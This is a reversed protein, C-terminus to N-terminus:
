GRRQGLGGPNRGPRPAPRRVPGRTGGPRGPGRRLLRDRAPAADRDGAPHDAPPLRSGAGPEGRGAHPVRHGASGPRHRRPVPEAGGHGAAGGPRAGEPRGPHAPLALRGLLAPIRAPRVAQDQRVARHVEHGPASGAPAPGARGRRAATGPEDHGGLRGAGDQEHRAATGVDDLIQGRVAPVIVDRTQNATAQKTYATSNMVQLYYLRGGLAVLMAFALLYLVWLRHRSAANM